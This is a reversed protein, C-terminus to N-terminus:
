WVGPNLKASFYAFYAPIGFQIVLNITWIAYYLCISMYELESDSIIVDRHGRVSDCRRLFGCIVRRGSRTRNIVNSWGHVRLLITYRGQFLIVCRQFSHVNEFPDSAHPLSTISTDLVFYSPVPVPRAIIGPFGTRV